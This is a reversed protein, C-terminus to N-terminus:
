RQHETEVGLESPGIKKVTKESRPEDRLDRRLRENKSMRRDPVLRTAV